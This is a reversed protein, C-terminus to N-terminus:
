GSDKEDGRTGEWRGLPLVSLMKLDPLASRIAAKCFCLECVSITPSALRLDLHRLNYDRYLRGRMEQCFKWDGLIRLHMSKLYLLSVKKVETTDPPLQINPTYLRRFRVHLFDLTTLKTFFLDFLVPELRIVSIHLARLREYGALVNVITEVDYYSLEIHNLLLTTLSRRFQSLFAAPQLGNGCGTWLDLLELQPLPVDGIDQLIWQSISIDASTRPHPLPFNLCLQRLEDSHTRLTHRLGSNGTKNVNILDFNLSLKRLRPLHRIRRLHPTVDCRRYTTFTMNLDEITPHHDNIFPVLVDCLLSSLAEISRDFERFTFAIRLRELSPFTPSPRM